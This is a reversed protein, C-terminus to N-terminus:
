MVVCGEDDSWWSRRRKRTGGGRNPNQNTEAGMGVGDLEPLGARARDRMTRWDPGVAIRRWGWMTKLVGKGECDEQWSDLTVEEEGGGREPDYPEDASLGTGGSRRVSATDLSVRTFDGPTYGFPSAEYGRWGARPRTGVSYFNYVGM